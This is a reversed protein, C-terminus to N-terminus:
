KVNDLFWHFFRIIKNNSRITAERAYSSNLLRRATYDLLGIATACFPYQAEKLINQREPWCVPSGIRVKRELVSEAKECIGHLKSGGGTLVVNTCYDYFGRSELVTRINIFLEEIRKEIIRVIESQPVAVNNVRSDDGIIPYSIDTKEYTSSPLASGYLTKIREADAFSMEFHKVLDKTLRNAGIPIKDCFVIQGNYFFGIGTTGAGLDVIVSGQNKEEPKLCCLGAAYPSAVKKSCLLRCQDLVANMDRVPYVPTAITHMVVSLKDGTLGLPNKIEHRADVAYDIPVCHLIEGANDPIKNQAKEILLSMDAETTEQGGLDVSENILSSTLTGVSASAVVTEIREGTESEAAAVAHMVTSVADKLDAIESKDIGLSQVTGAAVPEFGDDGSPRAILCVTKSTGIDLVAILGNKNLVRPM